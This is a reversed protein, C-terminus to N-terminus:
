ERAKKLGQALPPAWDWRDLLALDSLDGTAEAAAVFGGRLDAPLGRPSPPRPAASVVWADVSEHVSGRPGGADRGASRRELSVRRRPSQYAAAAAAAAEWEALVDPEVSAWYRELM